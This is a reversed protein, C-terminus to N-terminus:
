DDVISDSFGHDQAITQVIVQGPGPYRYDSQSAWWIDNKRVPRCHDPNLQLNQKEWKHFYIAQHCFRYVFREIPPNSSSINTSYWLDLAKYIEINYM